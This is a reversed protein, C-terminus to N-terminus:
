VALVEGSPETSLVAAAASRLIPTLRGISVVTVEDELRQV